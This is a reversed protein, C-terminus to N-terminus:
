IVLGNIFQSIKENEWVIPHHYLSEKGSQEYLLIFHFPCSNEIKKLASSYNDWFVSHVSFNCIKYLYSVHINPVPEVGLLLMNRLLCFPLLALYIVIMPLSVKAGEKGQNAGRCRLGGRVAPHTDRRQSLPLPIRQFRM